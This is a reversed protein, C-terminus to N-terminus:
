GASTTRRRSWWNWGIAGTKQNRESETKYGTDAVFQGFQGRTVHYKGLYFPKTIRVRHQPHENKFFDANLRNEGYTKNFFAATAEASDSSGMLFEGAPILVMKLKVGGGLGVTLEKPPNKTKGGAVKSDQAAAVTLSGLTTLAVLAVTRVQRFM